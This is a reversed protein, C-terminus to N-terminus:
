TSLRGEGERASLWIGLAILAVGGWHFWRWREGLLLAALLAGFVPLLHIYQGTRNAGLRAVLHNWIVYALVSPLLAVYALAALNVPTPDFRNGQGLDWGYLGTLPLTGLGVTATLFVLPDM